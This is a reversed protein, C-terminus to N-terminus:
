QPKPNMFIRFNDNQNNNVRPHLTAGGSDGPGQAKPHGYQYVNKYDQTIPKVVKEALKYEKIFSAVIMFLIVVIALLLIYELTAQGKRSNLAM